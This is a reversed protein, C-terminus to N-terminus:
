DKYLIGDNFIILDAIEYYIRVPKSVKINEISEIELQDWYKKIQYKSLNRCYAILNYDRNITDKGNRCFAIDYYCIMGVYPDGAHELIRTPYMVISKKRKLVKSPILKKEKESIIQKTLIESILNETDLLNLKANSKASRNGSPKEFNPRGNKFAKERSYKTLKEVIEGGMVKPIFNQKKYNELSLNLFEKLLNMEKSDIPPLNDQKNFILYGNKDSPWDLVFAPVSFLEMLRFAAYDIAQSRKYLRLGVSNERKTSPMILFSPCNRSISGLMRPFRQLAHQYQPTCSALEITVFPKYSNNTIKGSIIIDPKDLYLLDKINEPLNDFDKSDNRVPIKRFSIEINPLISTLWEEISKAGEYYIILGIM